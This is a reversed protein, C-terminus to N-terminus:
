DTRRTRSGGVGRGGTAFSGGLTLRGDAGRDFVVVQNDTADNTMAYVAGPSAAGAALDASGEAPATAGRTEDCAAM